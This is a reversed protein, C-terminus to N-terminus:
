NVAHKVELLLVVCIAAFIFNSVWCFDLFFLMTSVDTKGKAHTRKIKYGLLLCAQCAYVLWFSEPAAGLFYASLLLNSVGLFFSFTSLGRAKLSRAEAEVVTLAELISPTAGDQTSQRMLAPKDMDTM